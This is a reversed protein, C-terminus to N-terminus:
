PHQNLLFPRIMETMVAQADISPDLAQKGVLHDALESLGTGVLEVNTDPELDGDARIADFLAIYMSRWTVYEAAMLVRLEEDWECHALLERHVRMVDSTAPEAMWKIVSELRAVARGPGEVVDRMPNIWYHRAYPVVSRILEDKDDFHYHVMAHSIEALDGVKRVTLGELGEEAMIQWVAATIRARTEAGRVEREDILKKQYKPSM